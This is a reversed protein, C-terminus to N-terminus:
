SHVTVLLRVAPHHSCLAPIDNTPRETQLILLCSCRRLRVETVSTLLCVCVFTQNVQVVAAASDIQCLFVLYSLFLSVSLSLLRGVEIIWDSPEKAFNWSLLLSVSGPMWRLKWCCQWMLWKGIDSIGRSQLCRVNWKAIQTAMSVPPRPFGFIQTTFWVWSFLCRRCCTATFCDKRRQLPVFFLLVAKSSDSGSISRVCIDSSILKSGWKLRIESCPQFFFWQWIRSFTSM